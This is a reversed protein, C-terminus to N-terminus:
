AIRDLRRCSCLRYKYALVKPDLPDMQFPLKLLLSQWILLSPLLVHRIPSKRLMTILAIYTFLTTLALGAALVPYKCIRRYLMVILMPAQTTKTYKTNLVRPM